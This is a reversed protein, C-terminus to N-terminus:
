RNPSSLIKAFSDFLLPEDLTIIKEAIRQSDEMAMGLQTNLFRQTLLMQELIVSAISIGEKTIECGQYKSYSVLGKCALRKLMDTASPAKVELLKAIQTTSIRKDEDMSLQYIKLLYMKEAYTLDNIEEMKNRWIVIM